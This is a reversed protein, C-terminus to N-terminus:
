DEDIEVDELPEGTYPHYIDINDVAESEVLFLGQDKAYYLEMVFPIARIHDKAEQETAGSEILEELKAKYAVPHESEILYVEITEIKGSSQKNM